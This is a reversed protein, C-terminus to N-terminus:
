TNLIEDLKGSDDMSKLDDYGGILQDEIFIQPLTKMGTEKALAMIKEADSGLAIEEFDVGKHTLLMKAMQCYPCNDRTYVKIKMM